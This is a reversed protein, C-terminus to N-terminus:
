KGSLGDKTGKVIGHIAAGLLAGAARGGTEGVAGMGRAALEAAPHADQPAQEAPQPVAQAPPAAQQRAAVVDDFAVAAPDQQVFRTSLYNETRLCYRTPWYPTILKYVTAGSNEAIDCPLQRHVNFTHIARAGSPTAVLSRVLAADIGGIQAALHIPTNGNLNTLGLDADRVIAQLIALPPTPARPTRTHAADQVNYNVSPHTLLASRLVLPVGAAVAYHAPTNGSHDPINLRLRSHGLLANICEAIGAEIAIILPTKGTAADPFNPEIRTDPINRQQEAHQALLRLAFPVNGSRLAIILATDRPERGQQMNIIDINAIANARTILTNIIDQPLPPNAMAAAVHLSSNGEANLLAPNIEPHASLKRAFAENRTRLAIILATDRPDRGQRKNITEADAHTVLADLLSRPLSPNTTAAAVHLPSNGEANCISLDIEPCALLAQVFEENRARLAIILATDGNENLANRKDTPTIEIIGRIAAPDMGICLAAFHLAINNHADKEGAMLDPRNLLAAIIRDDPNKLATHLPHENGIGKANCNAGAGLLEKVIDLRRNRIAYHLPPEGKSGRREIDARSALLFRVACLDDEDIAAEFFSSPRAATFISPRYGKVSNINEPTVTKRFEKTLASESALIPCTLTVLALIGTMTVIKIKM